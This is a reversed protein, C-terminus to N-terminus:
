HMLTQIRVRPIVEISAASFLSLQEKANDLYTTMKEGKGVYIDNVQNVVLQSDSFIKVNGAQLECVLHISTIVAEYEAENHGEPSILTM